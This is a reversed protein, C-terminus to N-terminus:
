VSREVVPCDILVVYRRRTERCEPCVATLEHLRQFEELPLCNAEEESLYKGVQLRAPLPGFALDPCGCPCVAKIENYLM